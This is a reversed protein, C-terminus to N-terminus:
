SAKENIDQTLVARSGVAILLADPFNAKIKSLIEYSISNPFKNGYKRHRM